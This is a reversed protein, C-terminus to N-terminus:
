HQFSLIIALMEKDHILYNLEADVMTKSFFAVLHWKYDLGQQSLVSGVVRDSADTEIQSLRILDFHVLVLASAL